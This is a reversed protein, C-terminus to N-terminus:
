ISQFVYTVLGGNKSHRGLSLLIDCVPSEPYSKALNYGRMLQSTQKKTFAIEYPHCEQDSELIQNGYDLTVFKKLIKGLPHYLGLVIKGNPNVLSKIKDIAEIYRPIHHLVGQAIVVDFKQTFQETLFNGHIFKANTIKNEAAFKAAYEASSSFDIGTISATPNISALLNAVLGTGCGIDLVADGPMITSNILKLFPNKISPVHYCLQPMTYHGPFQITSYFDQIQQETTM